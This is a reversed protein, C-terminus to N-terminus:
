PSDVGWPISSVCPLGDGCAGVSDCADRGGLWCAWGGEGGRGQEHPQVWLGGMHKWVRPPVELLPPRCWAPGMDVQWIAHVWAGFSMGGGEPMDRAVNSALGITDWGNPVLPVGGLQPEVAGCGGLMGGMDLQWERQLSVVTSGLPFAFSYVHFHATLIQQQNGLLLQLSYSCQFEAQM